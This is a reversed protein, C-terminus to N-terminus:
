AVLRGLDGRPYHLATAVGNRQFSVGVVSGTARAEVRWLDETTEITGVKRVEIDVFLLELQNREDILLHADTARDAHLSHRVVEKLVAHNKFSCVAIQNRRLCADLRAQDERAIRRNRQFMVTAFVPVCIMGVWLQGAIASRWVVFVWGLRALSPRRM